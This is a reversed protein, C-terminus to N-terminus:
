TTNAQESGLEGVYELVKNRITATLYYECLYAVM